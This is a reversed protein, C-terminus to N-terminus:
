FLREVELPMSSKWFGCHNVREINADLTSAVRFSSFSIANSITFYFKFRSVYEYNQCMKSNDITIVFSVIESCINIMTGNYNM